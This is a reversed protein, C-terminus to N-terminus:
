VNNAIQNSSSENEVNQDIIPSSTLMASQAQESQGIMANDSYDDTGMDDDGSAHTTAHTTTMLVMDDDGFADDTMIVSNDNDCRDPHVNNAIRKCNEKNWNDDTISRKSKMNLSDDITVNNDYVQLSDM